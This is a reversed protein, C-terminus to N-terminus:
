DESDDSPFEISIVVAIYIADVDGVSTLSHGSGSTCTLIEGPGFEFGDRDDRLRGQLCFVQESGVHTHFPFTTGAAIRILGGHAEGLGPGGDFDLFTIGPMLPAWGDQTPITDLHGRVAGEGLDLFTMLRDVFPLFRDRGTVQAFLRRRLESSPKATPEPQVWLGLLEIDEPGLLDDGNM